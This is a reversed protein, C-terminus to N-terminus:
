VLFINAPWLGRKEHIASSWLSTLPWAHTARHKGTYYLVAFGMIFAKSARGLVGRRYPPEVGTRVSCLGPCFTTSSSSLPPSPLSFVPPCSLLLLPSSLLLTEQMEFCILAINFISGGIWESSNREEKLHRQPHLLHMLHWEGTTFLNLASSLFFVHFPRSKKEKVFLSDKINEGPFTICFWVLLFKQWM